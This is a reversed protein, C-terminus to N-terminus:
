GLDFVRGSDKQGSEIQFRHACISNPLDIAFPCPGLKILHFPSEDNNTAFLHVRAVVGGERSAEISLLHSPKELSVPSKLLLPVDCFGFQNGEGDRIFARVADFCPERGSLGAENFKLMYNFAIKAISRFDEKRYGGEAYVRIGYPEPKQDLNVNEREFLKKFWDEDGPRCHLNLDM